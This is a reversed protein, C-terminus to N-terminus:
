PVILQKTSGASAEAVLEDLPGVRLCKAQCASECAAKKGKARRSACLTCNRSVHVFNDYQWRGNPLQWPGVECVEIGGKGPEFGFEMECAIECSHCGTCWNYDLLMAHKTM